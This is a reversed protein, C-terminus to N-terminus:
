YPIDHRKKREQLRREVVPMIENELARKEIDGMKRVTFKRLLTSAVPGRGDRYDRLKIGVQRARYYVQCRSLGTAKAIIDGHLGYNVLNVCDINEIDSWSIRKSKKKTKTKTM